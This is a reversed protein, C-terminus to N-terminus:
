KVEIQVLDGDKLHYADRLKIDTAIELIRKDYGDKRHLLAGVKLAL